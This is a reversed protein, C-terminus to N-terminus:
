KINKKGWNYLLVLALLAALAGIVAMFKVIADIAVPAIDSETYTPTYAM